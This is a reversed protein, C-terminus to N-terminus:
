RPLLCTCEGFSGRGDARTARIPTRGECNPCLLESDKVTAAADAAAMEPATANMKVSFDFSKRAKHPILHVVGNHKDSVVWTPALPVRWDCEPCRVETCYLYADARWRRRANGEPEGHETGGGTM